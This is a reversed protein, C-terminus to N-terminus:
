FLSVQPRVRNKYQEVLKPPPPKSESWIIHIYKVLDCKSYYEVAETLMSRILSNNSFCKQARQGTMMDHREFTNMVVSLKQSSSKALYTHPLSMFYLGCLILTCLILIHYKWRKIISGLSKLNPPSLTIMVEKENRPSQNMVSISSRSRVIM